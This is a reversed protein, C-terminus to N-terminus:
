FWHRLGWGYNAGAIGLNVEEIHNQGIDTIFMRGASDFSFHQAHRLGYAWIEAAIDSGWGVFPNDAPVSYAGHGRLTDEELEPKIRIIASQASALSQGYDRPDNAAGGDGLAVYLMGFEKSGPRAAPNFAMNGINHNPAFQGIRFIERSTGAFQNASPDSATWERIVSEHSAADHKLFGSQQADARASYATYFRGFGPAGPTAFQPHIAVSAVGMENPFQSDDFGINQRRLDLYTVPARGGTDTVYLVGRTDNIMLGDGGGFPVLYQIRAHADNTMNASSDSTRPLRVLPEVAVVIDGTEIREPLPDALGAGFASANVFLSLLSAAISLPWPYYLNM